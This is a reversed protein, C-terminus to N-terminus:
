LISLKYFFISNVLHSQLPFNYIGETRETIKVMHNRGTTYGTYRCYIWHLPYGKKKLPM